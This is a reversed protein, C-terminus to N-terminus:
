GRRRRWRRARRPAPPPTTSLPPSSPNQAPPPTLRLQESAPEATARCRWKSHRAHVAAAVRHWLPDRDTHAFVQKQQTTEQAGGLAASENREALVRSKSAAVIAVARLWKSARSMRSSSRSIDSSAAKASSQHHRTWGKRVVATNAARCSSRAEAIATALTEGPLRDHEPSRRSPFRPALVATRQSILTTSERFQQLSIQHGQLELQGSDRTRARNRM